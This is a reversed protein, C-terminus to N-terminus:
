QSRTMTQIVNALTLDMVSKNWNRGEVNLVYIHIMHKMAGATQM